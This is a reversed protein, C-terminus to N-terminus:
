IKWISYFIKGGSVYRPANELAIKSIPAKGDVLIGFAEERWRNANSTSRKIYHEGHGTFYLSDYNSNSSRTNQLVVGGSGDKNTSISLVFPLAANWYIKGDPTQFFKKEYTPQQQGFVVVSSCIFLLLLSFVQFRMTLKLNISHLIM